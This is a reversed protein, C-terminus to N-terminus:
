GDTIVESTHIFTIEYVIQFATQNEALVTTEDSVAPTLVTTEASIASHDLLTTAFSEEAEANLRSTSIKETAMAGGFEGSPHRILRGSPTMKDTVKGRERNVQSSKYTKDGSRTNQSRINAIAKRATAGTLDGIVAPIHLLFFLLLSVLLMIGALAAGGIFIYRYVEYSM